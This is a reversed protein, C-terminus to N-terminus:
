FQYGVHVSARQESVHTTNVIGDYNLSVSLNKLPHMTVSAGATLYGRPLSTGPATFLTGDQAGVSIARGAELLEHAYGVRLEADVPKLADGFSKSIAVDVYPQLSHVNDSGVTLDQGGVGSEGFGNAHFYAYRLGIRPTVTVSGLTMPLSAAGGVDFEQGIHDGEATGKAGFPRKQSLFDLGGGPTAGVIVPGFARGGYFAARLTDTTGSDGTVSEGIDAHDYGLAIGTLYAGYKSDLGALFGYRNTQFGPEGNTGGVNTHSGTATIWGYPSGSTAPSIRVVRDLLAANQSQVGLIASTGLATYISTQTPAVVLPASDALTLTVDNAGYALSSTLTGIYEAGTRSVSSFTGNIGKSTSVLTYSKASYTGPDYTIALVGSLTASGQVVLESAATPSVEISLAANAGQTYNGGVTLVGISGGPAVRGNNTVNGMVEGHGRLTGAVDVLVNGGLKATPTAIDGVELMGETVETTGSYAASNGTLILSGSGHKVFAGTGSLAGAFTGSANTLTLSQAGLKVSGSGTITAATTGATASSLDLTGDNAIGTTTTLKGAGSLALTAGSAIATAGSYSNVGTLTETGAAM